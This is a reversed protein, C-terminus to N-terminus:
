STEKELEILLEAEEQVMTWVRRETIEDRSFTETWGRQPMNEAPVYGQKHGVHLKLRVLM